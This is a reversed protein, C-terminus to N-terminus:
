QVLTNVHYRTLHLTVEIDVREAKGQIGAATQIGVGVVRTEIGREVDEVLQVVVIVVDVDILQHETGLQFVLGDLTHRQSTQNRGTQRLGAALM